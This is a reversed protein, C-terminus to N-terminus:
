QSQAQSPKHGFYQKKKGGAPSDSAWASNKQRLHLRRLQPEFM